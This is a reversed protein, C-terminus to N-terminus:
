TPVGTTLRDPNERPALHWGEPIEPERITGDPKRWRAILKGSDWGPGDRLLLDLGDYRDGRRRKYNVISM